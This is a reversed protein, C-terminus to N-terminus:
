YYHVATQHVSCKESSGHFLVFFLSNSRKLVCGDFYSATCHQFLSEPFHTDTLTNALQYFSGAGMTKCIQQILRFLVQTFTYVSDAMIQQPSKFRAPLSKYSAQCVMFAIGLGVVTTKNWTNECLLILASLTANNRQQLAYMTVNDLSYAQDCVSLGLELRRTEFLSLSSLSYLLQAMLLSFM